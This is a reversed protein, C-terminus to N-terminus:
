SISSNISEPGLYMIGGYNAVAQLFSRRKRLRFVNWFQMGNRFGDLNRLPQLHNSRVIWHRRTFLSLLRGNVWVYKWLWALLNRCPWNRIWYRNAISCHSITGFENILLINRIMASDYVITLWTSHQRTANRTSSPLIPVACLTAPSKISCFWWLSPARRQRHSLSSPHLLSNWSRTFWLTIPDVSHTFSPLSCLGANTTSITRNNFGDVSPKRQFHNEQSSNLDASGYNTSKKMLYLCIPPPLLRQTRAFAPPLTKIHHCVRAKDKIKPWDVDAIM